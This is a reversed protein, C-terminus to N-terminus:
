SLAEGLAARLAEAQELGYRYGVEIIEDCRDFDLSEFPDVPPCLVVSAAQTTALRQRESTCLLSRLLVSGVSPVAIRAAFPNLRNWLLARADPIRGWAEDVRLPTSSSVDVAIIPGQSRARMPAVPLNDLLGGDVLLEGESVAPALIGPLATSARVALYLSGREHIEQVSRSLNTSCAFFPLWTDEVQRGQGLEELIPEVRSLSLLSVFPLTYSRSLRSTVFVRRLSEELAELPMRLALGAGVGAGMSTGGIRDVPVGLEVLARAVGMHAFGKAGGGGLVLSIERGSLHRGLRKVEAPDGRRLHLHSALKPRADLWAATGTPVSADPPHLLLLSVSGHALRDVQLDLAGADPERRADALLLVRDAQRICRRTWGGAEADGVYIVTEHEDELSGHWAAFGRVGPHDAPRDASGPGHAAEFDQRDVCLSRGPLCPAFSRALGRADLGPHLPVLALTTPHRDRPAVGTMRGALTRILPLLAGAERAILAHFRDASLRLLETDRLAVVTASRPEQTLLAREGIPEARGRRAVSAQEGDAERVRIDLGGHVVVYLADGIEGQEFLVESGRLYIPELSAILQDMWREDLAGFVEALTTALDPFRARAQRAFAAALSPHEAVLRTRVDDDLHLVRCATAARVAVTHRGGHQLEQRDIVAGPGRGGEASGDQLLVVLEGEAVLWLGAVPAGVEFLTEGIQLDRAIMSAVLAERAPASLDVLAPASALATSHGPDPM